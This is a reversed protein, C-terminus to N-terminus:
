KKPYLKEFRATVEKKLVEVQENWKKGCYSNEEIILKFQEIDSYQFVNDFQELNFNRVIGNIFSYVELSVKEMERMTNIIKLFKNTEIPNNGGLSNPSIFRSMYICVEKYEPSFDAKLRTKALTEIFADNMQKNIKQQELQLNKVENADTVNEAKKHAVLKAGQNQETQNEM